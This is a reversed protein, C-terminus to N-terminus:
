TSSKRTYKIQWAPGLIGNHNKWRLLLHYCGGDKETLRITNGRSVSSYTLETTIDLMDIHFRGDKWMFYWKNEQTEKRKAIFQDIEIQSAYRELYDRISKRVVAKKEATHHDERDYLQQMFPHCGEDSKFIHKTYEERSPKQETIGEDCAIYKDLYHEYYFMDYSPSNGGISLKNIYLSLFQPLKAICSAGYKFEVKRVAVTEGSANRFSVEFDHNNSRGGIRRITTTTYAPIATREALEAVTTNWADYVKAWKAGYTPDQKYEEPISQIHHLITERIKNHADNNGRASIIFFLEIDDVTLEKKTKPKAKPKPKIPEDDSSMQRRYLEDAAASQLAILESITM